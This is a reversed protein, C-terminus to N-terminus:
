NREKVKQKVRSKNVSPQNTIQSTLDMARTAENLARVFAMAAADTVTEDGVKLESQRVLSATSESM